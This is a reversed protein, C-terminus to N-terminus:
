YRWGLGASLALTGAPFADGGGAFGGVDLRLTLGMAVRGAGLTLLDIAVAVWGGMVLSSGVGEIFARGLNIGARARVLEGLHLQAGLDGAAELYRSGGSSGAHVRGGAVLGLTGAVDFGVIADAGGTIANFNPASPDQGISTRWGAGGTVEVIAGFTRDARATSPLLASLLALAIATRPSPRLLRRASM